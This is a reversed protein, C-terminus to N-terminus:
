GIIDSFDISLKELTEIYPSLLAHLNELEISQDTRCYFLSVLTKLSVMLHDLEGVKSDLLNGFNQIYQIQEEPLNHPFLEAKLKTYNAKEINQVNM